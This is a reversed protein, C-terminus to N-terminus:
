VRRAKPRLINPQEPTRPNAPDSTRAFGSWGFQRIRRPRFSGFAGPTLSERMRDLEEELFAPFYRSRGHLAVESGRGDRRVEVCVSKEYFFFRVFLGLVALFMGATVVPLGWDRTVGFYGWYRLDSFALTYEGFHVTQGLPALGSYSTRGRDMVVLDLVPNRPIPSRTAPFGLHPRFDPYLRARVVLGTGPVRFSDEQDERLVVLNVYADLLDRGSTDRILFAPAFGVRELHFQFGQYAMPRNVGASGWVLEGNGDRLEVDANLGVLYRDDRYEPALRGLSVAAPPFSGGVKPRDPTRLFSADDLFLTQGETLLIYGSFRTLGSILAGAFVAVLSAHFLASGWFGLSGKTAAIRLYGEARELAVRYRRKELLALAERSVIEPERGASFRHQATFPRPLPAGADRRRLRGMVRTGTCVATSVMLWAILLLFPTSRVVTQIGLVGALWLVVPREQALWLLQGETMRSADPLMTGLVLVLSGLSLLLM